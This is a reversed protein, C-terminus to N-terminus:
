QYFPSHNSIFPITLLKPTDAGEITNFGSLCGSYGLLGSINLMNEMNNGVQNEAINQPMRYALHKSWQQWKRTVPLTTVELDVLPVAGM